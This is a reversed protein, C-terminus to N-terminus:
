DNSTITVSHVEEYRSDTQAESTAGFYLGDALRTVGGRHNSVIFYRHNEGCTVQEGGMSLLYLLSGPLWTVSQYGKPLAEDHSIIENM